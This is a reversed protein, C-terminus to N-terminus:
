KHVCRVAFGLYKYADDVRQSPLFYAYANGDDAFTGESETSSWYYGDSLKGNLTFGPNEVGSDANTLDLTTTDQGLRLNQLMWCNGDNLRAIWYERGDRSDM